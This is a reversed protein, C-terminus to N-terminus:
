GYIRIVQEVAQEATLEGLGVKDLIELISIVNNTDTTKLLKKQRKLRAKYKLNYAQKRARKHEETVRPAM